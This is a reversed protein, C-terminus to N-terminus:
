FWIDLAQIHGNRVMEAYPSLLYPGAIEVRGDVPIEFAIRSPALEHTNLHAENHYTIDCCGLFRFSVKGEDSFLWGPLAPRLSL